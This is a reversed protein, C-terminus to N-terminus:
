KSDSARVIPGVWGHRPHREARPDHAAPPKRSVFRNKYWFKLVTQPYSLIKEPFTRFIASVVSFTRFIHSFGPFHASFTRFDRFIEESRLLCSCQTVYSSTRLTGFTHQIGASTGREGNGVRSNGFEKTLTDWPLKDPSRPLRALAHSWEHPLAYDVIPTTRCTKTCISGPNQTIKLESNRNAGHRSFDTSDAIRSM